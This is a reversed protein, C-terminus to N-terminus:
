PQRVSLRAGNVTSCISEWSVLKTRSVSKKLSVLLDKKTGVLFVFSSGPRNEQLAEELWRRSLSFLVPSRPPPVRRSSLGSETTSPASLGGEALGLSAEGGDPQLLCAGGPQQAQLPLHVFHMEGGTVQAKSVEWM